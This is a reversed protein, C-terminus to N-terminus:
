SRRPGYLQRRVAKLASQVTKKALGAEAFINGVSILVSEPSSATLPTVLAVPKGRKTVVVERRGDFIRTAKIKFEKINVFQQM